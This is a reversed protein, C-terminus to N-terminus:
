EEMICHCLSVIVCHCLAVMVCHCLAVIGCHCLAVIARHDFTRIDLHGSTRIDFIDFTVFYKPIIKSYTPSMTRYKIKYNNSNLMPCRLIPYFKGLCFLHLLYIYSFISLFLIYLIYLHIFM